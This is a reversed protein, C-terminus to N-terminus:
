KPNLYTHTNYLIKKIKVFRVCVTTREARTVHPSYQFPVLFMKTINRQHHHTHLTPLIYAYIRHLLPGTHIAMATNVRCPQAAAFILSDGRDCLSHVNQSLSLIDANLLACSIDRICMFTYCPCGYTIRNSRLTYYVIARRIYIYPHIKHECENYTASM